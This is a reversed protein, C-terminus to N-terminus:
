LNALIQTFRWIEHFTNYLPVPAVRVVNPQRFDGIVGAAHLADFLTEPRDHALISIQCGREAPSRPTIIEYSASPGAHAGHTVARQCEDLLYLLYASQLESKARLAAMGVEDFIALSAKVPAMALIPPNSLQWGDASPVPNFEANLHMRFRTKPDNGWWGGLRPLDVNRAHREHVFCGAVAGPGSNLYKYTCWVAFDVGWDHLRLEVNGAAHALDFAVTCGAAHAAAAIRSMDLLQGTFYNVGGFLVLAIRPGERQLIAEIDETRLAHEGPHPRAILLVDHPDFGHHRIQTRVAYTDSPFACDEMLIKYRDPTPRYFTVMMLHLNVTLGSMVVVENPLGGVLRAMPERLEEQYTYWPTLDKFHADVGLRAWDELEREVAAHAATPQLGLSNGCFYIVPNGNPKRPIHFQRRYGALPDAADLERAFDEDPRFNM